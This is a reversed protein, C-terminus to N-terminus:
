LSSRSGIVAYCGMRNVSTLTMNESYVSGATKWKNDYEDYRYLAVEDLKRMYAKTRDYDLSIYMPVILYNIPVITKGAFFDARLEYVPSLNHGRDVTPSTGCCTIQFRIGADDRNRSAYVNPFRFVEPAFRLYFDDSQVRILRVSGSDIIYAPINVIVKQAGVLAGSSLDIVVVRNEEERGINVYVTDGMRQIVTNEGIEGDEDPPGARSGTRVTNSEESPPSSGFEGVAKVVFKYSSKSDIDDYIYSTLETSGIFELDDDEVLYVDYGTAGEVGEWHIKIYLDRGSYEDDVVEAMVEAPAETGPLDYILDDYTESAGGDPNIVIIGGTNLKGPPTTVLLTESDIFEVEEGDTGSELIFAALEASTWDGDERATIKYISEEQGDDEVPSIVPNFVVRAGEMFGSGNIKIQQFGKVSIIDMDDGEEPDLVGAIEPNSIYTFTVEQSSVEGDPNEVRIEASGPAGPPSVVSLTKYDVVEVEDVKVEGFFVQLENGEYGEITERFDQGQIKVVTGGCAPGTDPEIGTIEPTSEGKTFQIYISKEGAPMEDSAAIGGDENIVVVRHLEGVESEDVEPMIFSMESPLNYSIDGPEITFLDSVQIVANERFDEGLIDVVSRGKYNMRLIRIDEGDVTAEQPLIGDRSISTIVPSSSPNKYEFKGTAVAGDPNVVSLLVEGVTYYSASRATILGSSEMEAQPSYGREVLLRRGEVWIKVLEYVPCSEGEENELQGMDVFKVTGDFGTFECEYIEGGKELTFDIDGAVADYRLTLGGEVELRSVQGGIIIGSDEDGTNSISGFRVLPMEEDLVEGGPQLLEIETAAFGSGYIEINENGQKKGVSPMVATIKPSSVKYIFEKKNSVGCDNNIVYVYIKGETGAPVEVGLYGSGFDRIEALSNGFYVKPLINKDAESMGDTSGISSLDTYVEDGNIDTFIEGEDYRFNVIVNDEFPEYFRFDRGIIQVYLGGAANDETKSLRDIVPQSTPVVYTFADERGASGGDSPNLIIVPVAKRDVGLDEQLDGSYPPVKADIAKGDLSVFIDEAEVETGNIFVRSKIVGNDEFNEGNIRIFYGGSTSGEDPEISSIVPIKQPRRYFKFGDEVTFKNTDPNVVTVDYLGQVGLDPITVYIRKGKDTVKVRNGVIEGEDTQYPTLVKLEIGSGLVIKDFDGQSDSDAEVEVATEEGGQDVAKLGSGEAEIVYEGFGDSLIIEGADNKKLVYFKSTNEDKLLVSYYYDALVAVGEEVHLVKDDEAACFNQLGIENTGPKYYYDNIDQQDFFVRTGILRYMSIGEDSATPDPPLFVDGEIIAISNITGESPVISTIEPQTVAKVYTFDAADMGGGPNMVILKTEGERGSPADFTILQSSPDRKSSVLTGDIFVQVDEQFNYGEIEIGDEGGTPVIGPSVRTIVPTSDEAVTVFEILDDKRVPYGYSNSNKKPNTIEVYTPFNLKDGLVGHGEPIKMVIRTGEEKGASGDVVNDGDFVEVSAGAIKNGDRDYVNTEDKGERKLYISGGLDVIPYLVTEEQTEPDTYKSVIFSEGSVAIVMEEKTAYGGADEQVVQIKDPTAEEIVPETFSKIFLFSDEKVALERFKYVEGSPVVEVVTLIDLVVDRLPEDEIESDAIISTVVKLTDYNKNVFKQEAAAQFTADKGIIVKITRTVHVDKEVEGPKYTGNGYDIVLAEGGDYLSINDEYVADSVSLNDINLEELNYGVITVPNNSLNPGQSPSVAVVNAADTDDIIIFEGVLMEKTVLNRLDQGSPPSALLNTMLVEYTGVSLEPVKVKIIDNGDPDPIYEYDTGMNVAYYPDSTDRLFFVSATDLQSARFYVVTEGAVGKNPYMELDSIEMKQVVRFQDLYLRRITVNGNVDGGPTNVRTFIVDHLGPDGSINSIAIESFARVIEGTFSGNGFSLDDSDLNSGYITVTGEQTSLGSYVVRPEVGTIAPMNTDDVAVTKGEVNLGDGLLLSKMETGSLSFKIYTSENTVRTGIDVGLIKSGGGGATRVRVMADKLNAGDIEIVGQVTELADNDTREIYVDNITVEEAQVPNVPALIDSIFLMLMLVAATLNVRRM